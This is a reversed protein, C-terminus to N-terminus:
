LFKWACSFHNGLVSVQGNRLLTELTYIFWQFVGKFFTFHAKAWRKVNCAILKCSVAFLVKVARRVRLKGIGYCRKLESNTAEIGSRIKYREKWQTTQQDAYMQDRLRLEATAELRFDGVTDRVQCGSVRHNPARVPCQDLMTCARCTNGDFIAHLSRGTTNHASLIRHDTPSQGMPCQTVSGSSDFQFRDRGVVDDALPGRNVPTMFEVQQETIKLASPVSPYGGDAFLTEPKMGAESFREIVPFPKVLIRDVRVM